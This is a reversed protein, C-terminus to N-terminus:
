QWCTKKGTCRLRPFASHTRGYAIALFPKILSGAPIAREPDEWRQAVVRGEEDLLLYSLAPDAFERALVAEASQRHLDQGVAVARLAPLQTRAAMLMAALILAAAAAKAGQKVIGKKV